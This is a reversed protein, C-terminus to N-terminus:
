KVVNTGCDPCFKDHISVQKGCNSCFIYKSDAQNNFVISKEIPQQYNSNSLNNKSKSSNRLFRLISVIVVIILGIGILLGILYGLLYGITSPAKVEGSVINEWDSTLSPDIELILGLKYDLKYQLNATFSDGDGLGFIEKEPVVITVSTSFSGSESNIEFDGKVESLIPSKASFLRLQVSIQHFRDQNSAFSISTIVISFSYINGTEFNNTEPTINISLQDGRGSVWIKSYNLSGTITTSSLFTANILIILLFVSVRKM